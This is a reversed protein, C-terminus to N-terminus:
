ERSDVEDRARAYAQILDRLEQAENDDEAGGDLRLVLDENHDENEYVRAEIFNAIVQAKEDRRARWEELTKGATAPALRSRLRELEGPQNNLYASLFARADAASVESVDHGGPPVPASNTPRDQFAEGCM